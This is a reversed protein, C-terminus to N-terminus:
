GIPPRILNALLPSARSADHAVPPAVAPRPTSAVDYSIAIASANAVCSCLCAGPPCCDDHSGPPAVPPADHMSAMEDHCPAAAGQGAVAESAMRTNAFAAVTGNALLALCLLIRLLCPLPRM